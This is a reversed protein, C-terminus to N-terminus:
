FANRIVDFLYYCNNTVIHLFCKSGLNQATLIQKPKEIYRDISQYNCASKEFIHFILKFFFFNVM